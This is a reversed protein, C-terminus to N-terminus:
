VIIMITNLLQVRHKFRTLTKQRTSRFFIFLVIFLILNVIVIVKNSWYNPMKLQTMLNYASDTIMSNMIIYPRPTNSNSGIVLKRKMKVVM